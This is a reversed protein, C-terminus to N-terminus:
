QKYEIYFLDGGLTKCTSKSVRGMLIELAMRTPFFHLHLDFTYKYPRQKPVVIILKNKSVRRLESIARGINRVHELTHACVVTDFYNDPFSINEINEQTFFLSETESVLSKNLSFDAGVIDAKKSLLQSLFGNGCAIDLVKEGNLINREIEFLCEKNIDTERNIHVDKTIFYIESLEDETLQLANDKFDLFIRCKDKFMLWFPIYMFWKSDRLIPPILEDIIFHIFLASKRSFKM